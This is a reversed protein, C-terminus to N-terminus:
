NLVEIEVGHLMREIEFVRDRLLDYEACELLWLATSRQIRLKGRVRTIRRVSNLLYNLRAERKAGIQKQLELAGASIRFNDNNSQDALM